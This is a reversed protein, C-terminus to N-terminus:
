PQTSVTLGEIPKGETDCIRLVFGWDKKQNCVKLLLPTVGLSKLLMIALWFRAADNLQETLMLARPDGAESRKRVVGRSVASLAIEAAAALWIVLM